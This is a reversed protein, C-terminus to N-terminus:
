FIPKNPTTINPMKMYCPEFYSIDQFENNQFFREALSALHLASCNQIGGVVVNENILDIGLKKAGNGSVVLVNAQAKKLVTQSFNYFLDHQLILPQAPAVEQLQADYVATWVEQRRADLM